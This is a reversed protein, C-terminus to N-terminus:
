VYYNKLASVIPKTISVHIFYGPPGVRILPVSIMCVVLRLPRVPGSLCSGSDLGPLVWCVSRATGGRIITITPPSIYIYIYM